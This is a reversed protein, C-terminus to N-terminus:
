DKNDNIKKKEPFFAKAGHIFLSRLKDWFDGGLVFLSTILVIDGIASILNRYEEYSSILHTFYPLLLGALIPILFLVLGIRYRAKSVTDAPGHKKLFGFVKSKIYNFGEKGAVAVAIMMFLEPIGLALLGSLAAKWGVSLNSSTVIPILLPSLFGGIFIIGATILKGKPPLNETQNTKQNM